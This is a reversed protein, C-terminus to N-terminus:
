FIVWNGPTIFLVSIVALVAYLVVQHLVYILLSHRGIFSIPRDWGRDLAPLRTKREPYLLPSAAAGALFVGLWPLVPFFDSPSITQTDYVLHSYYLSDKSDFFIQLVFPTDASFAGVFSPTHRLSIYVLIIFVALLGCVGSTTHKNGKTLTNILQWVWLGVALLHLVGFNISNSGGMLNTVLTVCGAAATLIIARKLNSKSFNCCIGCLALFICFIIPHIIDRAPCTWYYAAFLCLKFLGEKGALNVAAYDFYEGLSLDRVALPLNFSTGFWDPGFTSFLDLLFHDCIMLIVCFGRLFDLEWIRKKRKLSADTM